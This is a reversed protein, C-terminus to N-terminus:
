PTDSLVHIGPLNRYQGEMDMGYGFVYQDPCTMGVVDPRYDVMKRDHHKDLLIATKVRAAGEAICYDHLAQLTKGEDFIDDVLLVQKGNLDSKPKLHWVLEDGRTTNHYRTVKLSEMEVPFKLLRALDASFLLGGTLVCILLWEDECSENLQKAVVAVAIEDPSYLETFKDTM